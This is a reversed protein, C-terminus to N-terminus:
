NQKNGFKIKKYVMTIGVLSIGPIILNFWNLNKSLSPLPRTDQVQYAKTESNGQKSTYVVEKYRLDLSKPAIAVIELVDAVEKIGYRDPLLRLSTISNKAPILLAKKSNLDKISEGEESKVIDQSKLLTKKIAYIDSYERYGNLGLCKGSRLIRNSTPLNPNQSKVHAILFYKPYKDINAIKFCYNVPSEGPPLVDAWAVPVHINNILTVTVLIKLIDKMSKMM